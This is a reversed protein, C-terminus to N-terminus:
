EEYRMCSYLQTHKHTKQKKKLQNTKPRNFDLWSIEKFFISIIHHHCQRYCEHTGHMHAAHWKGLQDIENTSRTKFM